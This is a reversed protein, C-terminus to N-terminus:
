LRKVPVFRQVIVMCSPQRLRKSCLRPRISGSVAILRPPHQLQASRPLGHLTTVSAPQINRYRRCSAQRTTDAQTSDLRLSFLAAFSCSRCFRISTAKQYHYSKPPFLPTTVEPALSQLDFTPQSSQSTSNPWCSDSRDRSFLVRSKPKHWHCFRSPQHTRVPHKIHHYHHREGRLLQIHYSV